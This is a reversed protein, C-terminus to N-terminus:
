AALLQQLNDWAAREQDSLHGDRHAIAIRAAMEEPDDRVAWILREILTKCHQRM